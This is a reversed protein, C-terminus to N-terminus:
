AGTLIKEARRLRDARTEQSEKKRIINRPPAVQRRPQVSPSTNQPKRAAEYKKTIKEANTTDNNPAEGNKEDVQNFFPDVDPFTEVKKVQEVEEVQVTATLEKVVQVADNNIFSFQFFFHLAVIALIGTGGVWVNKKALKWNVPVDPTNKSIEHPESTNRKFANKFFKTEKKSFDM